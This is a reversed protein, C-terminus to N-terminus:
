RQGRIVSVKFLLLVSLLLRSNNQQKRREIIINSIISEQWNGMGVMISGAEKCESLEKKGM